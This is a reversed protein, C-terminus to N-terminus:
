LPPPAINDASDVEKPDDHPVIEGETILCADYGIPHEDIHIPAETTTGHEEPLTEPPVVMVMMLAPQPAEVMMPQSPSSVYPEVMPQITGMPKYNLWTTHKVLGQPEPSRVQTSNPVHGQAGLCRGCFKCPQWRARITSPGALINTQPGYTTTAPATPATLQPRMPAPLRPAADTNPKTERRYFM